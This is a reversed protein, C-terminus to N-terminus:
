NWYDLLKPKFRLYTKLSVLWATASSSLFVQTVIISNSKLASNRVTFYYLRNIYLGWDYKRRVYLWGNNVSQSCKFSITTKPITIYLMLRFCYVQNNILRFSLQCIQCCALLSIRTSYTEQLRERHADTIFRANIMCNHLSNSNLRPLLTMM